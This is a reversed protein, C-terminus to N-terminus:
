NGGKVNEAFTVFAYDFLEASDSSPEGNVSAKYGSSVGLASRVQSVTAGDNLDLQKIEGGAVQAQVKM